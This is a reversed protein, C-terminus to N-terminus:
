VAFPSRRHSLWDGSRGPCVVRCLFLRLDIRLAEVVGLAEAGGLAAVGLAERAGLALRLCVRSLTPFVFMRRAPGTGCDMASWCVSIACFYAPCKTPCGYRAAWCRTPGSAM